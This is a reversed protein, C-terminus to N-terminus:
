LQDVDDYELEVPVPRGFITLEVRVRGVAELVEKVEGELGAFTGFTVRVRSGAELGSPRPPPPQDKGPKVPFVFEEPFLTTDDHEGDEFRTGELVAASLDAGRLDAGGFDAKRLNANKFSAGRCRSGRLTCGKLSAGEFDAQRLNSGAFNVGDLSAGRFRAKVLSCEYLSAGILNAGEFTAGEFDLGGLCSGVHHGLNAGRLDCNALDARRFNGARTLAESRLANWERVGEPGGRLLELFREREAKQRAKREAASPLPLAFAEHWAALAIEPLEKPTKKVSGARVGLTELYLEAGPWQQALELMAGCLTDAQCSRHDPVHAPEPSSDAQIVRRGSLGSSFAQVSRGGDRIHLCVIDAGRHDPDIHLSTELTGLQDRVAELQRMNPGVRELAVPPPPILGLPVGPGLASLSAAYLNVGTFNAGEVTAGTLDAGALNAGTLNAGSLDANTLNARCLSANSLGAGRFSAGALDCRDLFARSLNAGGFDARSFTSEQLLAGTLDAARFVAQQSRTYSGEVGTLTAGTFDTRVIVAPNLRVNSFDANRASCDTLHFVYARPLRAGDLNVRVLNDLCSGSLDAGSLDAGDLKVRYLVIGTLKAGRLEAGSLDIPVRPQDDRRQRWQELGADGSRLLALAEEPTPSLLDRLGPQDLVQIATGGENLAHVQREERTPQGSRRDLVVLYDLSPTIERVVAGGLRALLRATEDLSSDDPSPRALLFSKGRIKSPPWGTEPSSQKEPM